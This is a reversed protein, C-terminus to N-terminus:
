IDITSCHKPIVGSRRKLFSIGLCDFEGAIDFLKDGIEIAKKWIELDQFRFLKGKTKSKESMIEQRRGGAGLGM